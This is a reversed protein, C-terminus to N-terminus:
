RDAPGVGWAGRWATAADLVVVSAGTRLANPPATMPEIAVARRRGDGALADATFCMVHGFAAGGTVEIPPVRAGRDLLVRWHGAEDLSLGTFCDDLRLRRLSAGGPEALAAYPGSALSEEGCPLKREDLVLRTSAPVRLRCADLGDPGPDLYPHFGAAFPLPDLGENTATLEVVLGNADLSYRLSLSLLFPYSPQPHLVYSLRCSSPWVEDIRWNLWRVLGHIANSLEPEDLPVRVERGQFEFRGDELRNPWPVLVQGRGASAREQSGFGWLVPVDDIEYRRLTAGVETVVARHPGHVLEIQEGSPLRVVPITGIDGPVGEDYTRTAVVSRGPPARARPEDM